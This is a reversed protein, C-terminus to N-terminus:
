PFDITHLQSQVNAKGDDYQPREPAEKGRGWRIRGPLQSRREMANEQRSVALWRETNAADLVEEECGYGRLWERM